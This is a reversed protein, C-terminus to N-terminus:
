DEAQSTQKDSTTSSSKPQELQKSVPKVPKCDKGDTCSNTCKGKDKIAQPKSSKDILSTNRSLPADLKHNGNFDKKPKGDILFKVGHIEKIETVSDVICYLTLLEAEKGGQHKGIFDSTLDVTAIGDDITVPARLKTGAPITSKLGSNPTPGNILEKVVNSALNSASKKAESIPIYRVELKLKDASENLFYLHLPVKDALKKSEDEGLSVSSTPHGKGDRSATKDSGFCGSLLLAVALGIMSICIWKRM